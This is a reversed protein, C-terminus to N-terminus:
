RQVIAAFNNHGQQVIFGRHGSGVQQISATNHLGSQQIYAIHRTGDQRISAVHSGGDQIVMATSESGVPGLAPLGDTISVIPGALEAATPMSQQLTSSLLQLSGGRLLGASLPDASATTVLLGSVFVATVVHAKM